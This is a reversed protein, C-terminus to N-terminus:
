FYNKHCCHLTKGDRGSVPLERPDWTLWGAGLIARSGRSRGETGTTTGAKGCPVSRQGDCCSAFWFSIFVWIWEIGQYRSLFCLDCPSLFPFIVMIEKSTISTSLHFISHGLPLAVEPVQEDFDLKNDLTVYPVEEGMVQGATPSASSLSFLHSITCVLWRRKASVLAWVVIRSVSGWWIAFLGLCTFHWRIVRHWGCLLATHKMVGPEWVGEGDALSRFFYHGNLCYFLFCAM